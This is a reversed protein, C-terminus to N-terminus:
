RSFSIKNTKPSTLSFFISLFFYSGFGKIIKALYCASRQLNLETQIDLKFDPEMSKEACVFVKYIIKRHYKVGYNFLKPLNLNEIWKSPIRVKEKSGQIEVLFYM